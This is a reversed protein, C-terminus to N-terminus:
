GHKKIFEILDRNNNKKGEHKDKWRIRNWKLQGKDDTAKAVYLMAVEDICYAVYEDDICLIESPRKQYARAM